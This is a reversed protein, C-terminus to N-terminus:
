PGTLKVNDTLVATDFLSDGSDFTHIKLTVPDGTGALASVDHNIQKWGTMFVTSDGGAFDIGNVAIWTSTNITELALTTTGGPTTLTAVFQDDFVDGVFEMPEESVVNYYFSLTTVGAPICFAQEIFSDSASVSGLGSSIINMYTGAKPNLPGLKSIIRVDGQGTWGKTNGEEFSGNNLGSEVTIGIGTMKPIAPPSGGDNAGHASVADNFADITTKGNNVISTWYTIATNMSYSSLVCETYGTYTKAGNGIFADSMTNNFMGRCTGAHIISGPFSKNHFSIFAPTIAYYGSIIVLRGKKLDKEYTAKSAATPKEGTLIVVQAGTSSWGFKDQWQPLIGSFFTDGHSIISVIGYKSLTKFTAVDAAADVTTKVNFKPCKSNTFLTNLANGESATGFKTDFPGVILADKSNISPITSDLARSTLLPGDITSQVKGPKYDLAKQIVPKIPTYSPRWGGRTGEPNLLIGGLVGSDMVYWIGNGSESLGAQSVDPDSELWEVTAGRASSKTNTAILEDYKQQTQDPLVIARGFETVTLHAIVPFGVVESLATEKSTSASVRLRINGETSETLTVTGSFVGDSAIDDGSSVNGDDALTALTAIINDDSDVKLLQVSSTVLDPNEKIAIRFVVSTAENVFITDPTAQHASLFEIPLNDVINVTISDFFLQDFDVLGNMILDVGFYFIYSGLPLGAINLVEFPSTISFLPGQFTVSLGQIWGSELDYHYWDDPPAFSTNVVVWFDANEGSNDGPNLAATAILNNTQLANIIPGDSTNVQLDAIPSVAFSKSSLGINSVVILLFLIAFRKLVQKNKM